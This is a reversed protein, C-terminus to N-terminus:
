DVRRRKAAQEELELAREEFEREKLECKVLYHDYGDREEACPKCVMRTPRVISSRIGDARNRLEQAPQSLDGDDPEYNAAASFWRFKSLCRDCWRTGDPNRGHVIYDRCCLGRDEAYLDLASYVHLERKRKLFPEVKM